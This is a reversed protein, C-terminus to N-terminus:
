FLGFNQMKQVIKPMNKVIKVFITRFRLYILSNTLFVVVGLTKRWDGEFQIVILRGIPLKHQNLIFAM